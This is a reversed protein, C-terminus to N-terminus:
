HRANSLWGIRDSELGQLAAPDDFPEKGADIAIPAAGLTEPCAARECGSKEVSGTDYQQDLSDSTPSSTRTPSKARDASPSM